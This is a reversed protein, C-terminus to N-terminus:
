EISPSHDLILGSKSIRTIAMGMNNNKLINRLHTVFVDLSRKAFYDDNRWGRELIVDKQVIKGFNNTLVEFIKSQKNSLKHVLVDGKYIIKELTNYTYEGFNITKNLDATLKRLTEFNRIFSYINYLIVKSFIKPSFYHFNNKETNYYSPFPVVLDADKIDEVDTIDGIVIIPIYLNHKKILSIARQTYEHSASLVYADVDKNEIHTFLQKELKAISVTNTDLKAERIVANLIDYNETNILIKM